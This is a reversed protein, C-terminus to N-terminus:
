HKVKREYDRPVLFKPGEARDQEQALMMREAFANIFPMELQVRAETALLLLAARVQTRNLGRYCAVDVTGDGAASLAFYNGGFPADAETPHYALHGAEIDELALTTRIADLGQDVVNVTADTVSDDRFAVARWVRATSFPNITATPRTVTTTM